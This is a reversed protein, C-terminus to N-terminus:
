GTGREQGRANRSNRATSDRQRPQADRGRQQGQRGHVHARGPAGSPGAGRGGRAVSASAAPTADIATGGRLLVVDWEGESDRVTVPVPRVLGLRQEVFAAARRLAWARPDAADAPVDWTEDALARDNDFFHVKM